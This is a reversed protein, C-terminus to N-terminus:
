SKNGKNFKGIFEGLPMQGQDGVGRKRVAVSDNKQEKEGIVLIYPIKELEAQRIRKQLTLDKDDIGVRALQDVKLSKKVKNAYAVSDKSIPIVKIQEPSLWLPLAGGSQELLVAIFREVSGLIARHIMVPAQKEGAKDIYSVELREAMSFDLQVTGM